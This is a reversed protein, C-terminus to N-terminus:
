KPPAKKRPAKPYQKNIADVNDQIAQDRTCGNRVDDCIYSQVYCDSADKANRTVVVTLNSDSRIAQKGAKNLTKILATSELSKKKRM